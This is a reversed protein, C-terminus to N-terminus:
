SLRRYTYPNLNFFTFDRNAKITPLCVGPSHGWTQRLSQEIADELFTRLRSEVNLPPTSKEIGTLEYAGFTSKKHELLSPLVNEIAANLEETASKLNQWRKSHQSDRIKFGEVITPKFLDIIGAAVLTWGTARMWVNSTNPGLGAPKAGKPNRRILSAGIALTLYETYATLYHVYQDLYPQIKEASELHSFFTHFKDKMYSM